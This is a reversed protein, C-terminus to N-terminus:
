EEQQESKEEERMNNILLGNLIGFFFLFRERQNLGKLIGTQEIGKINEKVYEEIFNEPTEATGKSLIDAEIGKVYNFMEESLGLNNINEM